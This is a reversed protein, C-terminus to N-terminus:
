KDTPKPESGQINETAKTPAMRSSTRQKASASMQQNTADAHDAILSEVTIDIATRASRCVFVRGLLESSSPFIIGLMGFFFILTMTTEGFKEFRQAVIGDQFISVWQALVTFLLGALAFSICIGNDLHRMYILRFLVGYPKQLWHAEKGPKMPYRTKDNPSHGRPFTQVSNLFQLWYEEGNTKQSRRESAKKLLSAVKDRATHHWQSPNTPRDSPYRIDIKHELYETINNRYRYDPLAVYAMNLATSSAFLTVLSDIATAAM